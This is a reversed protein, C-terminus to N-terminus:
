GTGGGSRGRDHHARRLQEDSLKEAFNLIHANTEVFIRTVESAPSPSM